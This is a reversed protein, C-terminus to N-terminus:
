VGSIESRYGDIERWLTDIQRQNEYLIITCHDLITQETAHEKIRQFVGNAQALFAINETNQKIFYKLLEHKYNVM